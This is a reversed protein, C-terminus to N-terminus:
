RNLMILMEWYIERVFIAFCANPDRLCKMSCTTSMPFLLELLVFIMVNTLRAPRDPVPLEVSHNYPLSILGKLWRNAVEDGIRAKEVPDATNLIRLAAEVLTEETSM